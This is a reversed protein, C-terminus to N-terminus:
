VNALCSLATIYPHIIYGQNAAATPRECMDVKSMKRLENNNHKIYMYATTYVCIYLDYYISSKNERKENDTLLM